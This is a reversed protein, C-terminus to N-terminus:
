HRVVVGHVNHNGSNGGTRVNIRNTKVDKRTVIKHIILCRRTEHLNQIPIHNTHHYSITIFLVAVVPRFALRFALAGDQVKSSMFTHCQVIGTAKVM